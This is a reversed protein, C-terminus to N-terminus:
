MVLLKFQFLQCGDGYLMWPQLAKLHIEVSASYMNYMIQIKPEEPKCLYLAMTLKDPSIYPQIRTQLLFENTRPLICHSYALM